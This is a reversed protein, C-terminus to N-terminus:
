IQDQFGQGRRAIVFSAGTHVNLKMKSCYKKSAIWSTWAPNVKVVDVGHRAACSEISEIFERYALSHIMNNYKKDQKTETTAKQTSFNLNEVCIDKTKDRALKVVMNAISQFDTKTADGRKFRYPIFDTYVMNGHKNTEALTVFGKNFDLGITGLEKSTRIESQCMDFTCYLYYREGRKLIKYYLPSTRNKLIRVIEKKYNNFYVSGLVYKVEANKNEGFDKRLKIYFQNTRKDYTLQLMKNCCKDVRCGGYSIQSDRQLIFKDHDQKLLKKTGFCIKYRGSEIQYNLNYLAHKLKNLKNKKAVLKRKLNRHRQLNVSNGKRLNQCNVDKKNQIKPLVTNEIHYIKKELQSKEYKKLEKIASLKTQAEIIISNATRQLIDYKNQLYTNYVSSNFNNSNRIAYFTERLAESYTSLVSEVYKIIQPNNKAHLQTIVTVKRKKNSISKM